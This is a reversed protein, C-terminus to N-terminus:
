SRDGSCRKHGERPPRSQGIRKVLSLAERAASPLSTLIHIPRKVVGSTRISQRLAALSRLNRNLRHYSSLFFRAPYRGSGGFALLNGKVICYGARMARAILGLQFFPSLVSPQHNSPTESQPKRRVVLVYPTGNFTSFLLSTTENLPLEFVQREPEQHKSPDRFASVSLKEHAFREACGADLRRNRLPVM